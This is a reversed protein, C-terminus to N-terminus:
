SKRARPRADVRPTARGSDEREIWCGRPKAMPLHKRGESRRSRGAEVPSRGPCAPPLRWRAEGRRRWKGFREIGARPRRRGSPRDVAPRCSTREEGRGDGELCSEEQRGSQSSVRVLGPWTVRARGTVLFPCSLLPFPESPRPSVPTKGDRALGLKTRPFKSREASWEGDDDEKGEPRARSLLPSGPDRRDDM